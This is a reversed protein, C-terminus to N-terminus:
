MHQWLSMQLVLKCNIIVVSRHNVNIVYTNDTTATINGNFKNEDVKKNEILENWILYIEIHTM